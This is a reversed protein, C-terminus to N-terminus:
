RSCCPLTSQGPCKVRRVTVCVAGQNNGYRSELDNAFANLEGNRRPTYTWGRGRCGIRFFECGDRRVSGVLEFWNASPCRRKPEVMRILLRTMRPADSAVWGKVTCRIKADLWTQNRKVDFTYHQGAELYVGSANYMKRSDVRFTWSEGIQLRRLCAAGSKPRTSDEEGCAGGVSGLTVTLLLAVSLGRALLNRPM